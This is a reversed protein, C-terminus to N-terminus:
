HQEGKAPEMASKHYNPFAPRKATPLPNAKLKNMVVEVAKELQPDHGARCAAPSLEVEIDPHVGHNEVDWEGEPNYFALRPATVGGGDMLQPYNYIGILGGWTTTGVLPGIGARRFYWPLADGGSGAFMNVIMAKPGFISGMPTTFDQGDRTMWYNMLPRRLYDIVYDAASGGGNFREDIVAGEKGIQAFYYRNFNTYGGYSTDPLYVYAVRGGSLQDVKRRNDDIWARNRLGGESAVPVVTVTRAGKGDPTLGVKLVVSHDATEQFFQYINDTDKLDRGNVELLYEGAVVNVGPETLPARLGPNWNEGQYVRTFRYRGNELKYDAGLLGTRPPQAGTRPPDSIFMHGITIEGLMDNFIYNLDTRSALNDLYPRYQEEISTLNVGHLNPDYLFDRQIRWVEHYMQRWEARPDVYVQMSELKLQGDSKGPDPPKGLQDVAVIYWNRAKRYLAKKGDASLQFAGVGEIVKEPKRATFEFKHVTIGEGPGGRPPLLEGEAVYITGTKGAQLGVYNRAPMPLSLIRQSIDAVDIRVPEKDKDKDKDKDKKAAAKQKDSTSNEAKKDATDADPKSETKAEGVKEEDSEPALPSPLDKRLVILYVSRTVPRNISSLDLWGTTPGVDTSATFYLYKGSEDFAPFLADSLGDTLQSSKGSELSYAFVAHLHNGLQRTYAIWRSDPSWVMDMHVDPTDYLDTDVKVPVKKDVELYWFNLHKDTYAIKKSDPSWTPSYYFSPDPLPFKQVTMGDQSRLHLAYEGSEDSFYAIWRGDPSWAPSREAVGTTNTLNRIDGKEAPVTLIEGHAEFVARAGTPSINAEEIREGVKEFRSRIGPLDGSVKVTLTAVKGTNIDYTRLAGLQEFVIADPGAEACKIDKGDPAILQTVKKASTDYAYLTTSGDRDSLFYIKQGIWIPNFDNSNDRPIKEITSDSLKAIWIHSTRGGRYRKWASRMSANTVPVYALKAGDASYSGEEGMPLPLAEALNGDLAVSYLMSYRSYSNRNSRFLVRKGDPSWGVVFDGAPHYTLRRPPGGAAPMVYVDTNGDYEGSFAIMTGDPSFVPDYKAGPGTTLPRAEGGGRPATWLDGAFSFVLQTRSLTPHHLLLPKDSQALLLTTALILVLLICFRKM